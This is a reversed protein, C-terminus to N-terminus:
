IGEDELLGRIKSNNKSQEDGQKHEKTKVGNIIFENGLLLAEEISTDSDVSPIKFELDNLLELIKEIKPRQFDNPAEKIFKKWYKIVQEKDRLFFLSVYGLQFLSPKFSKNEKYSMEFFNFAQKGNQLQIYAKAIQYNEYYNSTLQSKAQEYYEIALLYKEEQLSIDGMMSIIEGNSDGLKIKELIKEKAQSWNKNYFASYIDEIPSSFLDLPLYNFYCLLVLLIRYFM